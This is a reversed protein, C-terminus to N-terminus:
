PELGNESIGMLTVLPKPTQTGLKPTRIELTLVVSNKLIEFVMIYLHEPIYPATIESRGVIVVNPCDRLHLQM